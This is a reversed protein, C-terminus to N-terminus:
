AFLMFRAKFLGPGFGLLPVCILQDGQWAAPVTLLIDRRPVGEPMTWNRDRLSKLGSVGLARIEMNGVEEREVECGAPSMWEIYFRGDWLGEEGRAQVPVDDRGVERIISLAGDQDSIKCGHLTVGRGTQNDRVTKELRLLREYRPGFNAGAVTKLAHALVRRRTDADLELFAERDFIVEGYPSVSAAQQWFLDAARELVVNAESMRTATAVIREATLGLSEFTERMNRLRSRTFADDENSPDELWAQQVDELLATLDRKSIHLLPRLLRVSGFAGGLSREEAMASLGAVGSGRALRMLFTEAQDDFHHATLFTQVHNELCWEGILRYRAERAAAEINSSPKTGGWTLTVHKIGLDRAWASVAVAESASEARLGHDVTLATLDLRNGASKNWACLLHLLAMSDAGGSVGVAVPGAVGLRTMTEEFIQWTGSTM